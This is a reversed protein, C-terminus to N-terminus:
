CPSRMSILSLLFGYVHISPLTLPSTCQPLICARDRSLHGSEKSGSLPFTLFLPPLSIVPRRQATKRTGRSAIVITSEDRPPAVVGLAAPAAAGRAVVPWVLVRPM